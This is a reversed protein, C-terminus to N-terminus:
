FFTNIKYKFITYVTNDDIKVCEMVFISRTFIHETEQTHRTIKTFIGVKRTRHM